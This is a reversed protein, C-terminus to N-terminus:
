PFVVTWKGKEKYIKRGDAFTEVTFDSYRDVRVPQGDDQIQEVQRVQGAPVQEVDAPPIEDWDAPYGQGGEFPDEVEVTNLGKDLGFAARVKKKIGACFIPSNAYNGIITRDLYDSLNFIIDRPTAEGQHVLGELIGVQEDIMVTLRERARAKNHATMAPM